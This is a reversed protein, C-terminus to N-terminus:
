VKQVPPAQEDRHRAANPVRFMVTFDGAPKPNRTDDPNAASPPPVALLDPPIRQRGKWVTLDLLEQRDPTAAYEVGDQAGECVLLATRKLLAALERDPSVAHVLVNLGTVKDRARLCRQSVISRIEFRDFFSLLGM